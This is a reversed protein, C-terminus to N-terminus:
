WAVEQPLVRRPEGFLHGLPEGARAQLPEGLEVAKAALRDRAQFLLAAAAVLQRGPASLRRRLREGLHLGELFLDPEEFLLLLLVALRERRDLRADGVDRVLRHGAPFVLRGVPELPGPSLRARKVERRLGVPVEPRREADQIELAPRLEGARAEGHQASRARPQRPREHGEHEVQVRALVAVRSIRGGNRAM